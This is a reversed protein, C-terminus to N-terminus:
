SWVGSCISIYNWTTALARFQILAQARLHGTMWDTWEVFIEQIWAQDPSRALHSTTFNHLLGLFVKTEGLIASPIVEQQIFCKLCRRCSPNYECARFDVQYISGQSPQATRQLNPSHSKVSICLCDHGQFQSWWM